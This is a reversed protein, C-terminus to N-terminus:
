AVRLTAWERPCVGGTLESHEPDGQPKGSRCGRHDQRHAPVQLKHDRASRHRQGAAPELAGRKGPVTMGVAVPSGAQAEPPKERQVHQKVTAQKEPSLPVPQTQVATGGTQAEAASTGLLAALLVARALSMMSQAQWRRAPQGEAWRRHEPIRGEAQDMKGETRLKTDGFMRGLFEKVRGGLTKGSGEIRDQDM